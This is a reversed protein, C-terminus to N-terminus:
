KAFLVSCKAGLLVHRADDGILHKAFGTSGLSDIVILDIEREEAEKLIEDYPSGTRVNTTVKDPDIYPFIALQRRIELRASEYMEAQLRSFLKEDFCYDGICQKVPHQIVHLLFVESNFEKAIDFAHRLAKHSYEPMEIPVLIRTPKFMAREGARKGEFLNKHYL